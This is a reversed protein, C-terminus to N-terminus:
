GSQGTAETAATFLVPVNWSCPQGPWSLPKRPLTTWAFLLTPNIFLLRLNIKFSGFGSVNPFTGTQLVSSTVSDDLCQFKMMETGMHQRLKIMNGLTADAWCFVTILSGPVSGEFAFRSTSSNSM